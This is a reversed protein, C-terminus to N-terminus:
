EIRFGDAEEAARVLDGISDSATLGQSAAFRKIAVPPVDVTTESAVLLLGLAEPTPSSPGANSAFWSVLSDFTATVDNSVMRQRTTDGDVHLTADIGYTFGDGDFSSALWRSVAQRDVAADGGTPRDGSRGGRGSEAAGREAVEPGAANAQPDAGPPQREAPSAPDASTFGSEDAPRREPRSRGVNPRGNTGVVYRGEEIEVVSEDDTFDLEDPDAPPADPEAAPADYDSM